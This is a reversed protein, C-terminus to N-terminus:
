AVVKDISHIKELRAVCKTSDSEDDEIILELPIQKNFEKVYIGGGKNIDAVAQEYGFKSELGGSAFGGTFSVAGGIRITKPPSSAEVDLFALPLMSLMLLFFFVSLRIIRKKRRM